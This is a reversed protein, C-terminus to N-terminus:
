PLNLKRSTIFYMLFYGMLIVVAAGINCIWLVQTFTVAEILIRFAVVPLIIQSLYFIAIAVVVKHKKAIFAGVTMSTMVLVLQTLCSLIVALIGLCIQGVIEITLVEMAREWLYPIEQWLTTWFESYMCMALVFMVVFALVTSVMVLLINLVMNVGGALLQQHTTVPLTFTLYAQDTFRRRYFQVMLVIMAGAACLVISMACVACVVGLLGSMM